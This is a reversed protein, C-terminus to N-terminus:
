LSLSRYGSMHCLWMMLSMCLYPYHRRCQSQNLVRICICTFHTHRHPCVTEGKLRWYIFCKTLSLIVWMSNRNTLTSFLLNMTLTVARRCCWLKYQELSGSRFNLPFLMNVTFHDTLSGNLSVGVLSSLLTLMILKCTCSPELQDPKQWKKNYYQYVFKIISIQTQCILPLFLASKTVLKAMWWISSM